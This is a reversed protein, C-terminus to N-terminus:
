RFFYQGIYNFALFLILSTLIMKIIKDPLFKQIRAGVYTGLLGGIGYIGGILGM